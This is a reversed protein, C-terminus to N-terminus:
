SFYWLMCMASSMYCPLLHPANQYHVVPGEFEVLVVHQEKAFESKKKMM